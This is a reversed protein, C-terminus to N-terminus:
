PTRATQSHDSDATKRHYLLLAEKMQDGTIEGNAWRQSLGKAYDSVPVGEIANLADALKLAQIRKRTRGFVESGTYRTNSSAAAKDAEDLKTEIDDTM